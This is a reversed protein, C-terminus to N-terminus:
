ESLDEHDAMTGEIDAFMKEAQATLDAVAAAGEIRTPNGTHIPFDPNVGAKLLADLSWADVTGHSEVLSEYDVKRYTIKENGDEDYNVVRAFDPQVPSRQDVTKDFHPSLPFM